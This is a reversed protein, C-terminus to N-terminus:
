QLLQHLTFCIQYKSDSVPFLCSNKNYPFHVVRFTVSLRVHYYLVEVQLKIM